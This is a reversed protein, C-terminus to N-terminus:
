LRDFLKNIQKKPLYVGTNESTFCIKDQQKLLSIKIKHKAPTYKVANDLFISFLQSILNADTYM